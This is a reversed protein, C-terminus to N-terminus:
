LKLNDYNDKNIQEHAIIAYHKEGIQMRTVRAVFWRKKRPAHCPYKLVFENSEGNLVLLIGKTMDNAEESGRGQSNKCVGLYNYKEFFAQEANASNGLAFKKWADNIQIIQGCEDIVAIQSSLADLINQSFLDDRKLGRALTPKTGSIFNVGMMENADLNLWEMLAKLRGSEPFSLGALWKRATERSIALNEYVRLNFNNAIFSTSPLKGFKKILAKKLSESFHSTVSKAEM